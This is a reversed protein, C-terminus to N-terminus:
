SGYQASKIRKNANGWTLISYNKYVISWDNEETDDFSSLLGNQASKDEGFVNLIGTSLMCPAVYTDYANIQKFNIDAYKRYHAKPYFKLVPKIKYM